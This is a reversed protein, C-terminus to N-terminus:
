TTSQGLKNVWRYIMAQNPFERCRFQKKFQLQNWNGKMELKQKIEVIKLVWIKTMIHSYWVKDENIFDISGYEVVLSPAGM